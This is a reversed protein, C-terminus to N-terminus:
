GSSFKAEQKDGWVKGKFAQDSDLSVISFIRFSRLM